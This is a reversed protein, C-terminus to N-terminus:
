AGSGEAGGWVIMRDGVWVALFHIRPQLPGASMPSWRDRGPDYVAGEPVEHNCEPIGDRPNPVCPSLDELRSGGVLLRDGTWVAENAHVDLPAKAGAKWRDARPDYASVSLNETPGTNGGFVLMRDGTWFAQHGTRGEPAKAIPRWRDTAPNYAAGDAKPEPTVGTSSVLSDAGGWVIVETGTWVASPQYRPSLPADAVATWHGAAPGGTAAKPSKSCATAVGAVAVAAALAM